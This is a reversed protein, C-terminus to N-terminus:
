FIYSKYPRVISSHASSPFIFAFNKSNLINPNMACTAGRAPPPPSVGDVLTNEISADPDKRRPFTLNPVQFVSNDRDLMFNQRNGDVLM